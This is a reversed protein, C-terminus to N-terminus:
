AMARRAAEKNFFVPLRWVAQKLVADGGTMEKM